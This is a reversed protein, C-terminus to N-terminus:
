DPDSQLCLLRRTGLHGCNMLVDVVSLNGIFKGLSNLITESHFRSEPGELEVDDTHPAIILVRRTSNMLHDVM